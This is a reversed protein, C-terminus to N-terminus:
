SFINRGKWTLNKTKLHIFASVVIRCFIFQQPVLLLLNGAAPQGSMVSIIIRTVLIIFLYLLGAAWGNWIFLYFPAITTAAAFLVTWVRSNGFFRFVNKSFGRISDQLTDYMRCSIDGNGLLVAIKLRRRKYEEAIAIDEVPNDRSWRHPETKRYIEGDFLMCQGNAACLSPRGSLRVLPLPLLSLLIWNMLPVALRSGPSPMLQTPFVSLLSLRYRDMYSLLKDTLQEGVRVDADLFLLREGRAALALRHCAFNKGLWGAEPTVGEMLRIYGYRRAFDAVVERTRDESLDDYVIIELPRYAAAVLDALLLGINKEENRAPILISVSPTHGGGAAAPLYPRSAWNVCSIILRVLGFLLLVWGAYMM